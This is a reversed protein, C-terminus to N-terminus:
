RAGIREYITLRGRHHLERFGESPRWSQGPRSEWVLVLDIAEPHPYMSPYGYGRAVGSRFHVPFHAVTAQFNDLNINRGRLCYYDAAHEFHNVVHPGLPSQVVFLTHGEGIRGVAVTYEALDRNAAQFHLGVLFINIGVLLYIGGLFWRKGVPSAPLCFCPLLLLPPLIILRAKLFGIALSFSDPVVLYLLGIALGLFGVASRSAMVPVPQADHRPVVIARILMLVFLLLVLLGMPFSDEYASFLGDDIYALAYSIQDFLGKRWLASLGNEVGAAERLGLLGPRILSNVALIGTPLAAAVVWGVRVFRRGPATGIIWLVSVFALSYGLLHTFYALIFLGGLWLTDYAGFKERRRLCFGVILWYSVLSLCYNYFGMLFCRNFLILLGVPALWKIEPGFAKLFFRYSYAFGLLYFSALVKEAMMIPLIYSLCVLLLQTTWNPFPERQLQFFEHYRTGSTGYDKLIVANALHHPGDQTPIYPFVWVPILHLVVLAAFVSPESWWASTHNPNNLCCTERRTNMLTFGLSVDASSYELLLSRLKKRSEEDATFFLHSARAV